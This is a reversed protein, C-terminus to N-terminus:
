DDTSATGEQVHYKQKNSKWLTMYKAECELKKKDLYEVIEQYRSSHRTPEIFYKEKWDREEEVRDVIKFIGNRFLDFVENNLIVLDGEKFKWTSDWKSSLEIM